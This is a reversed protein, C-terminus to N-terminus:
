SPLDLQFLVGFILWICFTISVSLIIPRRWDKYGVVKALGLSILLTSLIYGVIGVLLPWLAFNLLIGGSRLWGKRDIKESEGSPDIKERKILVSIALAIGTILVCLNAALPLLGPGLDGKEGLGLKLSPSLMAAAFSCFIGYIILETKSISKIKEM